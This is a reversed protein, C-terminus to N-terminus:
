RGRREARAPVLVVVATPMVTAKPARASARVVTTLELPRVVAPRSAAAVAGGVLQANTTRKVVKAKSPTPELGM